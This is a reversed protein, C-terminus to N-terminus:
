ETLVEVFRAYDGPHEPEPYDLFKAYFDRRMTYYRMTAHEMVFGHWEIWKTFQTVHAPIRVRSGL